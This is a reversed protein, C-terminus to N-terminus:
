QIGGQLEKKGEVITREGKTESTVGYQISMKLKLTADAFSISCKVNEKKTQTVYSLISNELKKYKGVFKM